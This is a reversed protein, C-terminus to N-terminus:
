KDRDIDQLARANLYLYNRSKSDGAKGHFNGYCILVPSKFGMIQLTKEDAKMGNIGLQSQWEYSTGEKKFYEQNPDGPCCFVERNKNLYPLLVEVISPFNEEGAPPNSPSMTCYPMIFRNDSLYMNLALGIQKLNGVCAIQKAREKSSNLAPLVMAALIGIIGITVLLEILTFHQKRRMM